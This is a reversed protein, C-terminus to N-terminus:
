LTSMTFQNVEGQNKQSDAGRMLLYQFFVFRDPDSIIVSLTLMSTQQCQKRLSWKIFRTMSYLFYWRVKKCIM